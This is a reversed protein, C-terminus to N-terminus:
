SLSDVSVSFPEILHELWVSIYELTPQDGNAFCQLLGANGLFTEWGSIYNRKLASIERSVTL